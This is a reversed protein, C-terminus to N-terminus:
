RPCTLTTWAVIFIGGAVIISFLEALSHFLLYEYKSTMYLGFLVIFGLLPTIYTRTRNPQDTETETM